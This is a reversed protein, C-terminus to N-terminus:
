TARLRCVNSLVRIDDESSKVIVVSEGFFDRTFYDGINELQDVRGAPLWSRMLVKEAEQEHYNQDNYCFTPIVSAKNLPKRVNEVDEETFLENLMNKKTM